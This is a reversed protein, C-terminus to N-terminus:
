FSGYAAQHTRNCGFLFCMERLMFFLLMLDINNVINVVIPALNLTMVGEKSLVGTTFLIFFFVHLM